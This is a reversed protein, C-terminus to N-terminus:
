NSEKSMGLASLASARTASTIPYFGSKITEAQGDRSLIYKIFELLPPDLPKALAKNLYIYLYRGLPYDGSYTSQPSTDYCKDASSVALPVARVGGTLYGIGSYGIAYKDNAVMKVVEASGPQEKLEDRFEGHRLVADVFTDHTGSASNRGFLTIPENAWDGTLGVDGWTKLNTGGPHLYAKSFIDDLQKLTLCPIPNAQNVYVALADVAVPFSTPHYGYKKELPEYEESRMPRSMAGIQSAGELLATPATGSGTSDIEIKVEPNLRTFENAWNRMLDGMTDSGVSKIAASGVPVPRYAPLQPDVELGHAATSLALGIVLCSALGITKM